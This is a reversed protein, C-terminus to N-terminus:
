EFFYDSYELFHYIVSIHCVSIETHIGSISKVVLTLYINVCDETNKEAEYTFFIHGVTNWCYYKGMEHPLTVYSICPKKAIANDVTQAPSIVAYM